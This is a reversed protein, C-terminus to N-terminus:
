LRHLQLKPHNRLVLATVLWLAAGFLGYWVLEQAPGAGPWLLAQSGTFSAHMLMGLLLSQARDYVWTMLTRFATLAVFWQLFHPTWLEGYVAAGGWYDALSHWLAWLLGLVLGTWAVGHRPLLRPTAFGTWGLEEFFGAGLGAVLAFVLKPPGPAFEPEALSLTFLVACLTAPAILLAAYPGRWRTFRAALDRLGPRGDFHATLAISALSPGALMALFVWPLLAPATPGPDPLGTSRTLVLIAGWSIGFALAFYAVLGRM